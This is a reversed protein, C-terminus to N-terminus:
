RLEGRLRESAGLAAASTAVPATNLKSRPLVGFQDSPRVLDGTGKRIYPGGGGLPGTLSGTSIGFSLSRCSCM